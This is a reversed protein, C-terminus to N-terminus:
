YISYREEKKKYCLFRRISYSTILMSASETPRWRLWRWFDSNILINTCIRIWFNFFSFSSSLSRKESNSHKDETNEAKYESSKGYASGTKWLHTENTSFIKARLSTPIQTCSLFLFLNGYGAMTRFTVTKQLCRLSIWLLKFRWALNDHNNGKIKQTFQSLSQLTM